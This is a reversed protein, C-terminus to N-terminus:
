KEATRSASLHTGAKAPFRKLIVGCAGGGQCSRIKSGKSLPAAPPRSSTFQDEVGAAALAAVTDGVRAVGIMGSQGTCSQECAGANQQSQGFRRERNVPYKEAESRVRGM